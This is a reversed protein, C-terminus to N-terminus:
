AARRYLFSHNIVEEPSISTLGYDKLATHCVPWLTYASGSKPQVTPDFAPDDFSLGSNDDRVWRTRAGDFKFGPKAGKGKGRVATEEEDFYKQKFGAKRISDGRVSV